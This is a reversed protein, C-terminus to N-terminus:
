NLPGIDALTRRIRDRVYPSLPELRMGGYISYLGIYIYYVYIYIYIYLVRKLPIIYPGQM